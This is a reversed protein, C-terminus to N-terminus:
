LSGWLLVQETAGQSSMQKRLRTVASGVARGHLFRLARETKRSSGPERQGFEAPSGASEDGTERVARGSGTTNGRERLGLLIHVKSHPRRAPQPSLARTLSNVLSLLVPYNSRAARRDPQPAAAKGPGKVM